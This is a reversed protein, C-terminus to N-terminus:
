NSRIRVWMISGQVIFVCVVLPRLKLGVGCLACMNDNSCHKEDYHKQMDKVFRCKFDCLECALEPIDISERRRSLRKKKTTSDSVECEDRVRKVRKRSYRQSIEVDEVEECELKVEELPMMSIDSNEVDKETESGPILNKNGPSTPRSSEIHKASRGLVQRRFRAEQGRQGRKKNGRTASTGCPTIELSNQRETLPLSESSKGPNANVEFIELGYLNKFGVIEVEEEVKERTVILREAPMRLGLMRMLLLLNDGTVVRSVPAFGKYVLRVLAELLELSIDPLIVVPDEKTVDKEIERLFSCLPMLVARHVALRYWTEGEKVVLTMDTMKGLSQSASHEVWQSTFFNLKDMPTINSRIILDRM